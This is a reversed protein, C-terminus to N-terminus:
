LMGATWDGGFVLGHPGCVSVECRDGTWRVPDWCDCMSSNDRRCVGRGSCYRVCSEGCTDGKYITEDWCTCSYNANLYGHPGCDPRTPEGFEGVGVGIYDLDDISPGHCYHQLMPHNIQGNGRFSGVWVSGALEGIRFYLEPSVLSLVLSPSPSLLVSVFSLSIFRSLSFSLPRLM